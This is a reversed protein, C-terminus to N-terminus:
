NKIFRVVSITKDDTIRMTYIGTKLFGVQISHNTSEARVEDRHVIRGFADVIEIQSIKASGPLNGLHLIDEVPNPFVKIVSNNAPM